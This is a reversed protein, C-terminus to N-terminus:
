QLQRRKAQRRGANGVWRELRDLTDALSQFGAPAARPPLAADGRLAAERIAIGHRALKPALEKRRARIDRLTSQYAHRFVRHRNAYSFVNTFFMEADDRRPQFLLVDAGRYQKAYGAMGVQMRSYIL